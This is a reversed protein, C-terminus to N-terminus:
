IQMSCIAGIGGHSSSIRIILRKIQFSITLIESTLTHNKLAATILYFDDSDLFMINEGKSEKIGTNRSDGSGTHPKQILKIRNDDKQFNQVALSCAKDQSGDDICIIEIDKMSQNIVSYLAQELLIKNQNYFPIIVSLLTM